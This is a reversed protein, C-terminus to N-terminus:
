IGEDETEVGSRVASLGYLEAWQPAHQALHARLQALARRITTKVTGLPAPLHEAIEGHTMGQFFALSLMQRAPASVTQLAAHLVCRTDTEDLWDMPSGAAVDHASHVQALEGDFVVPNAAHKRWADLARSRAMTLLWAMVCGRAAEFRACQTWAQFFVDQTVEQAAAEDHVFRRVLAHVRQVAVDYLRSLAAEARAPQSAQQAMLAVLELLQAQEAQDDKVHMSPTNTRKAGVPQTGTLALWWPLYAIAQM